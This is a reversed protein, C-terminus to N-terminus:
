SFAKQFETKLYLLHFNFEELLNVGNEKSLNDYGLYKNISDNTNFNAVINAGLNINSQYSQPDEKKFEKIFDNIEKIEDQTWQYNNILFFKALKEAKKLSKEFNNMDEFKLTQYHLMAFWGTLFMLISQKEVITLLYSNNFKNLLSKNNSLIDLMPQNLQKTIIEYDDKKDSWYLYIFIFIILVIAFIMLNNFEFNLMLVKPVTTVTAIFLILYFLKM